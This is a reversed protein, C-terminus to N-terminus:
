KEEDWGSREFGRLKPGNRTEDELAVKDVARALFDRRMVEQGLRSADYDLKPNGSGKSINWLAVSVIFAFAVGAAGGVAFGVFRDLQGRYDADSIDQTFKGVAVWVGIFTVLFVGLFSMGVATEAATNTTMRMAFGAVPAASAWAVFGGVAIPIIRSGQKILGVQWGVIAWLLVIVAAAIDLTM